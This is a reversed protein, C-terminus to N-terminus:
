QKVYAEYQAAVNAKSADGHHFFFRHRLNLSEGKKITHNGDGMKAGESKEFHGTGFRNATILGYDRAHWHTPFRFNSPHDFIAIGVLNGARSPGSYDAWAARKGWAKDNTEGNSNIITGTGSKTKPDKVVMTGAVRIGMGGDKNDGFTVDKITATLHSDFDMLVERNDIPYFALRLTEKLIEEQNIKWSNILVLEGSSGSSLKKVEILDIRAKLDGPTDPAWFSAGNVDRHSFRISRHHPHDQSEGAVGSVMPFNRTINEGDPGIVPYLYPVSWAKMQWETFLNGNIKIRFCDEHQSIEVEGGVLPQFSSFLFFAFFLIRM